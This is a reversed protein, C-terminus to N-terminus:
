RMLKAFGQFLQTGLKISISQISENGLYGSGTLFKAFLQFISVEAQEGAIRVLGATVLFQDFM